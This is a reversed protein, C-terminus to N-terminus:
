INRKSRICNNYICLYIQAAKTAVPNEPVSLNPYKKKVEELQQNGSGKYISVAIDTIERISYSDKFTEYLAHIFEKESKSIMSRVRKKKPCDLNVTHPVYSHRYLIQQVSGWDIIIQDLEPSVKYYGNVKSSDDSM